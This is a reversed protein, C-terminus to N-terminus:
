PYFVPIGGPGYRNVHSVWEGPTTVDYWRGTAPDMFDPGFQFRPTINLNLAPDNAVSEKVFTDIREGVFRATLSPDLAAARAQGQTLGESALREVANATHHALAAQIDDVPRLDTAVGGSDVAFRAGGAAVRAGGFLSGLIDGIPVVTTLVLGFGILSQKVQAPTTGAAGRESPCGGIKFVIPYCDPGLVSDTIASSRPKAAVPHTVPAQFPPPSALLKRVFGGPGSYYAPTVPLFYGPDSPASTGGNGYYQPPAYRCYYCIGSTHGGGGSAFHHELFQVSGCINDACMMQGSPDSASVPDDGAYSYGNLQQPSGPSLM